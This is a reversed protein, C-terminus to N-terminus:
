PPRVGRRNAYAYVRMRAWRPRCDRSYDLVFPAGAQHSSAARRQAAGDSQRPQGPEPPGPRGSRM